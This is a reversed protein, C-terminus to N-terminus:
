PRGVYSITACWMYLLRSPTATVTAIMTIQQPASIAYMITIASKRTGTIVCHNTEPEKKRLRTNMMEQVAASTSSGSLMIRLRFLRSHVDSADISSLKPKTTMTTSRQKTGTKLTSVTTYKLKEICTKWPSPMTMKAKSQEELRMGMAKSICPALLVRVM